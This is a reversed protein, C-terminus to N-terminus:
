RLAEKIGAMGALCAKFAGGQGPAVSLSGKDYSLFTWLRLRGIGATLRWIQVIGCIGNVFNM